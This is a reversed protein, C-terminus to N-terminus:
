QKIVKCQIITGRRTNLLKIFYMGSPLESISISQTNDAEKIVQGLIDSVTINVPESGLVHLLGTTPNPAINVVENNLITNVGLNSVVIAVSTGKCSNTDSVILAYSGNVSALYTANTAGTIAVDNLYWQYSNYLGSTSLTDDTNIIAPAPLMCASLKVVWFDQVGFNRTIDGDSSFTQGAVVFGTDPTQQITAAVDLASGGLAKEWQISGYKKLKVIWNDNAGHTGTVQGSTSDTSGAVVYGSDTTQQISYCVEDGAGGLSTEWQINGATDLKVIWYYIVPPQVVERTRGM